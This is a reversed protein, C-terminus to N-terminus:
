EISMQYIEVRELSNFYGRWDYLSAYEHLAVARIAEESKKSEENYRINLGNDTEILDKLKQARKPDKFAGWFSYNGRSRGFTDGDSYRVVVVSVIDGRKPADLDTKINENRWGPVSKRELYLANPSFTIVEDSRDSYPDSPDDPTGGSCGSDYSLYLTALDKESKNKKTM